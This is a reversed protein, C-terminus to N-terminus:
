NSGFWIRKNYLKIFINVNLSLHNVPGLIVIPKYLTERM